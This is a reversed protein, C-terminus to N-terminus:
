ASPYYFKPEILIVFIFFPKFRQRNAWISQPIFRKATKPSLCVSPCHLFWLCFCCYILVVIKQTIVYRTTTNRASTESCGIQGMKLRSFRVSIIDRFTPLYSGSSAAYYGLLVGNEVVERCFSSIVCRGILWACDNNFCLLVTCQSAFGM